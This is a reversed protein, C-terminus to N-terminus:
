VAAAESFHKYMEVREINAFGVRHYSKGAIQYGMGEFFEVTDPSVHVSMKQIGEERAQAELQLMLTEGIGYGQYDPSVYVHHIEDDHVAGVGVIQNHLEAVLTYDEKIAAYFDAAVNESLLHFRTKEDLTKNAAVCANIVGCCAAADKEKILRIIM